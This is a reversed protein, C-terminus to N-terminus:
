RKRGDWGSYLSWGIWGGERDSGLVRTVKGRRERVKVPFTPQDFAIERLGMVCCASDVIDFLPRSDNADTIGPGYIFVGFLETRGGGRTVFRVGKGECKVGLAWLDGGHNRVLGEDSDGEPNLHRAWLRQGPKRLEVLSPCDTAFLDGRGNGVIRVGCSEVIMTRSASRNELTVPPGGFSDLSQFKVVPASTDDVVFRGKPGGLVRGFGLGLVHRVSGKVRIEGEVNYWNPDGGGIGRLYVTSRGAAAAATIAKQIAETDDVNDGAVAGYDNACIWQSPDLEWAFDPEHRIPLQLPRGPSEFLRKVEHSTYEDINPGDINGSPTESRLASRFGSTKVNRAYLISRNVIAPQDPRNGELRANILALVGGWWTWDNPYDCVIPEPTGEVVLDEAAVVNASVYLGQKRCGKITVRSLTQGWIWQSVIGTEFGEVEADQILNPGSQPMFGSHIGVKGKGIVRINKLIGSNTAHYRIGDTEPNDGVDITLNHIKRMFWDASTPGSENPHTRLVSNCNPVADDLRIVVGDRSEGFVWPGIPSKAVLTRTVRYTGNPLYLVRTPGGDLGSSAELGKQLADSDDTIGDGKAGLDRKANIVSSDTPFACARASTGGRAQAYLSTPKAGHIAFLVPVLVLARIRSGRLKRM